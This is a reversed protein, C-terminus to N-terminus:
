VLLLLLHAQNFSSCQNMVTEIQVGVLLFFSVSCLLLLLEVPLCLYTQSSENKQKEIRKFFSIIRQM